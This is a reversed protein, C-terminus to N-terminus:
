KLLSWIFAAVTAMSSYRLESFTDSCKFLKQFFLPIIWSTLVEEEEEEESPSSLGSKLSLSPPSLEEQSNQRTERESPTLLSTVFVAQGKIANQEGGRVEQRSTLSASPLSKVHKLAVHRFHAEAVDRAFFRLQVLWRLWRWWWLVMLVLCERLRM